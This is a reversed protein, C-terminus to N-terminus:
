NNFSTSNQFDKSSKVILNAANSLNHLGTYTGSFTYSNGESITSQSIMVIWGPLENGDKDIFKMYCFLSNRTEVKSIFAASIEIKNYSIDKIEVRQIEFLDKNVEQVFSILLPKETSIFYEKLEKEAEDKLRTIELVKSQVNEPETIKRLEKNLKEIEEYYKKAIAPGKGLYNHEEYETCRSLMFVFLIFVVSFKM